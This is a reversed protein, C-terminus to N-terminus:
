RLTSDMATACMGGCLGYINSVSPIDPVSPVSFPIWYGPYRNVYQFGHKAPIFEVPPIEPLRYNRQNPQVDAKHSRPEGHHTYDFLLYPRFIDAFDLDRAPDYTLTFLGKENSHGPEVTLDDDETLVDADFLRVTVNAAPAGNAYQVVGTFTQSM